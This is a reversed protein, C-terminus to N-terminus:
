DQPTEDTTPDNMVEMYATLAAIERDLQRAAKTHADRAGRLEDLRNSPNASFTTPIGSAQVAEENLIEEGKADDPYSESPGGYAGDDEGTLAARQAARATVAEDGITEDVIDRIAQGWMAAANRRGTADDVGQFNLVFSGIGYPLDIEKTLVGEDEITSAAEWLQFDSNIIPRLESPKM